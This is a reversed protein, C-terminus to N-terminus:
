AELMKIQEKMEWIKERIVEPTDYVKWGKCTGGRELAQIVARHTVGIEQSMAWASVFERREGTQEHIAIVKRAQM